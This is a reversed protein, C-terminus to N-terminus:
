GGYSKTSKGSGYRKSTTPKRVTTKRATSKLQSQGTTNSKNFSNDSAYAARSVGSSMPRGMMYGFLGAYAATRIFSRRPDNQSMLKVEEIGFTDSTNDMYNAIIQSDERRELIEEDTIKFMDKEMEQLEVMIGQTPEELTEEIYDQEDSSGGGFIRFAFFLGLAGYIIWKIPFSSSQETM